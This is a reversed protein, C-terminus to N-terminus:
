INLLKKANLGMIKDIEDKVLFDCNNFYNTTIELMEPTFADSGFLIRNMGIIENAQLLIEKLRNPIMYTLNSIDLYINPYQVALSLAIDVFPYGMHAIILKLEPFSRIIEELNIPNSYKLVQKMTGPPPYGTHFLVPIQSKEAVEWAPYLIRDNLYKKRFSAMIKLGRYGDEKIARDIIDQINDGASSKEPPNFFPIFLKPALSVWEKVKENQNISLPLLVIKDLGARKAHYLTKEIVNNTEISKINEVQKIMREYFGYGKFYNFQRKLLDISETTSFIHCHFDVKM